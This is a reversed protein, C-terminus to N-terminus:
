QFITCYTTGNHKNKRVGHAYVYKSKACDAIYRYKFTLFFFIERYKRNSFEERM